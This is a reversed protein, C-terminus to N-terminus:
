FIPQLFTQCVECPCCERTWNCDQWQARADRNPSPFFFFFLVACYSCNTVAVWLLLGGTYSSRQSNPQARIRRPDASRTHTDSPTIFPRLQRGDMGVSGASHGGCCTSLARWAHLCACGGGVLGRRQGPEPVHQRSYLRVDCRYIMPLIKGIREM